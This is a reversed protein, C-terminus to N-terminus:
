RNPLVPGASRDPRETPHAIGVVTGCEPCRVPSERLDYGCKSCMGARVRRARRIRRRLTLAIPITLVLLIFWHPVDVSFSSRVGPGGFQAPMRNTGWHIQFGLRWLFPMKSRFPLTRSNLSLGDPSQGETDATRRDFLRQDDLSETSAMLVVHGLVSRLAVFSNRREAPVRNQYIVEDYLPRNSRGWFVIIIVCLAFWVVVAAAFRGKFEAWIERRLGFLRRGCWVAPLLAFCAMLLSISVSREVLPMAAMRREGAADFVRSEALAKRYAESGYPERDLTQTLSERERAIKKAELSRQPKNDLRFVGPELAAHWLRGFHFEQEITEGWSLDWVVILGILPVLSLLALVGLSIRLRRKV